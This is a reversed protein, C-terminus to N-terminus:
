LSQKLKKKDFYNLTLWSIFIGFMAGFFVDSVYHFGLYVRSFAVMTATVYFLPAYSKDYKALIYAACFAFAAHGSPFSFSTPYSALQIIDLLDALPRPRHFINKIVFNTLFWTAFMSIALTKPLLPFRKREYAIACAIIIVWLLAFSGTGSFLHFITNLLHTHPLAYIANTLFIDLNTISEM